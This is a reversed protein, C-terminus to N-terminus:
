RKYIAHRTQIKYTVSKLAWKNERILSMSRCISTLSILKKGSSDNSLTMSLPAQDRMREEGTSDLIKCFSSRRIQTNWSIKKYIKVKSFNWEALENRIGMPVRSEKITPNEEWRRSWWDDRNRLPIILTVHKRRHGKWHPVSAGILAAWISPSTLLNHEKYGWIGKRQFNSINDKGKFCYSYNTRKETRLQLTIWQISKHNCTPKKFRSSDIHHYYLRGLLPGM